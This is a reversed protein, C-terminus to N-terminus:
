KTSLKKPDRIDESLRSFSTPNKLIENFALVLETLMLATLMLDQGPSIAILAM